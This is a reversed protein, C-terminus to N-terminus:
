VQADPSRDSAGTRADAARRSWERLADGDQQFELSFFQDVAPEIQESPLTPSVFEGVIGVATQSGRPVYYLFFKSGQFPGELVEYAIGVPVLAAFRMTFRASKGLFDQEWSYTGSSVTTRNRQIDRHRHAATHADGSSLFEWVIGIPADFVGGEDRYFVVGQRGAPRM